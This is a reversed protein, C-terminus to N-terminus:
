DGDCGNSVDPSVSPFPLSADGPDSRTDTGTLWRILLMVGLFVGGILALLLIDMM